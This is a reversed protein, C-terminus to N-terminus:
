LDILYRPSAAAPPLQRGSPNPEQDPHCRPRGRYVVGLGPAEGDVAARELDAGIRAPHQYCVRAAPLHDDATTRRQEPQAESHPPEAVQGGDAQQGVGALGAQQRPDPKAV